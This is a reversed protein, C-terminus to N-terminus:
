NSIIMQSTSSITPGQSGILPVWFQFPYSVTVSVLCGRSNTGSCTASPTGPWQTTVIINSTNMLAFAQSQVYTQVETPTAPCNDLVNQTTCGSGRVIAWRTGLRALNSVTHYTYLARGFELIGFVFLLLAMAAFAFEVTSNGREGHRKM